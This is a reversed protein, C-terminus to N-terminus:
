RPGVYYACDERRIQGNTGSGCDCDGLIKCCSWGRASQSMDGGLDLRGQPPVDAGEWAEMADACENAEQAKQCDRDHQPSGYNILRSQMSLTLKAFEGVAGFIDGTRVCAWLRILHPASPDRALLTFLPEDPHAAAYCDFKGPNNKTGM